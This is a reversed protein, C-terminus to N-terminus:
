TKKMEKPVPLNMTQLIFPAVDALEQLNLSTTNNEKEKQIFIFPVKSCTHATHPQNTESDFMIEANGHDATIFLTGNMIEIVQKFLKELQKDLVEIAKITANMDGSHGVMDANAYNILYFDKPDSNLSKLVSETIQKASMAPHEIYNRAKISPILVCSETHYRQERGGSFFYTVHAYKETEAIAFMTKEYNHLVDPFSNKVIVKELIADTPIYDSYVTPTIFFSPVIGHTPFHRFKKQLVFPESLQRARDPRFNFFIIGDGSNIIGKQDIQTPVIFEDTTGQQYSKKLLEQWSPAINKQKETLTKYSKETREWNKNRDMAYFRGHISAITGIGLQETKKELAKLYHTASQPPADRGDLFLHLFVSTIGHQKAAQLFAYLHEMNSHVSADSLLGMIHLNKGSKACLELNKTLTKNTSFSGDKIMCHIKSVPQEIARGAGLTLHGVESNGINGDLLGVAAGSAKLLATPYSKIWEDIHPTKAQKIANYVNEPNYGFGDLIVLVVPKKVKKM